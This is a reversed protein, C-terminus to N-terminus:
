GVMAPTVDPELVPGSTGVTKRFMGVRAGRSARERGEGSRHCDQESAGSASQAVRVTGTSQAFGDPGSTSRATARRLAVSGARRMPTMITSGPPGPPEAACYAFAAGSVNLGSIRAREVDDAEVRATHAVAVGDEAVGACDADRV